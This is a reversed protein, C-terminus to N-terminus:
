AQPMSQCGGPRGCVQGCAGVEPAPGGGKGVAFKTFQKNLQTSACEPCRPVDSRGIYLEFQAACEACAYRFLPM